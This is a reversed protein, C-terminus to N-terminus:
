LDSNMSTSFISFYCPSTTLFIFILYHANLLVKIKLTTITYILKLVNFFWRPLVLVSCLKLIAIIFIKFEEQTVTKDM